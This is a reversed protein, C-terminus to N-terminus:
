ATGGCISTIYLINRFVPILAFINIVPM